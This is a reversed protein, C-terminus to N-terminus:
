TVKAMEGTMKFPEGRNINIRQRKEEVDSGNVGLSPPEKSNEVM